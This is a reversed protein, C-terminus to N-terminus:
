AVSGVWSGSAARRASGTACFAGSASFTEVGTGFDASLTISVAGPSAGATPSAALLLVALAALSTAISRRM